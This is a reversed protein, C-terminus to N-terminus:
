TYIFLELGSVGFPRVCCLGLVWDVVNGFVWNLVDVWIGWGGVWWLHAFILFFFM